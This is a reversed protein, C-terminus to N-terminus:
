INIHTTKLFLFLAFKVNQTHINTKGQPFMRSVCFICTIIPHFPFTFLTASSFVPSSSTQSSLLNIPNTLFSLLTPLLSLLLSLRSSSSSSASAPWCPSFAECFATMWIGWSHMLQSTVIILLPSFPHLPHFCLLHPSFFVDMLSLFVNDCPPYSSLDIFHFSPFYIWNICIYIYISFFSFKYLM